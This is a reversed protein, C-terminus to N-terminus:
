LLELAQEVTARDAIERVLLRGVAPRFPPPTREVVERLDVTDILEILEGLSDARFARRGTALEFLILGLAFADSPPAAGGDILQEPAMYAPTGRVSTPARVSSGGRSAIIREQSVTEDVRATDDVPTDTAGTAPVGSDAGSARAGDPASRGHRRAIGFDLLKAVGGGTLMVNAPKLDGHVVEARHSAALGAAIQRGLRRAEDPELPGRTLRRALSEGDLLEMAILPVGAPTEVAYVTCINPHNLAAASRAEGLVREPDIRAGPRLIKLAVSRELTEDWAEYVRGYAGEGLLRVIRYHGLIRGPHLQLAPDITVDARTWNAACLGGTRLAQLVRLTEGASRGVALNHVVQYQVVGAGDVLFLGRVAVGQDEDFVGYAEATRGGFDAGLPFRLPGVGGLEPPTALWEEHLEVPDISVGLVQCEHRHFEAIRASYSILETPCIFTFDRPYFVLALWDGAYDPLRARGRGAGYPNTCPLDFGPARHGVLLAPRNAPPDNM